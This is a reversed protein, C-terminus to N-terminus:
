AFTLRQAGLTGRAQSRNLVDVITRATGEPDIAGNVTLNITTGANGNRSGNTLQNNPVITGSTSPVFLEMGKEGVIYPTGAKVSGGVAKGEPVDIDSNEALKTFAAIGAITAAGAALGLLPNLAFKSAIGALISSNKLANMAGVILKIATVMSQAFSLIKSVIFVTALVGALIKLEDKFSIVTDILGKVKKGFEIAGSQTKGLSKEVGEDGTLGGVFGQIAPVVNELIYTTMETIVPLLAAGISEKTEDVAITMQNFKFKATEAENEIFGSYTKTLATVAADHDMTKLTAASVELGLKGLATNNGEYSKALANSVTELPKGTATSIEQALNLLNQAKEVDNTATVLRSLAPRLVDDATATAISQKTIWADVSSIQDDTASTTARLTQELKSQAAEDEAAAKVASAGFAIIAAGAVAFAAAAKKGFEGAKSSFTELESSAGTVGKKLDDFDADFTIKVKPIGAM